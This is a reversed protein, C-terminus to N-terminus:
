CTGDDGIPDRAGGALAKLAAGKTYGAARLVDIALQPRHPYVSKALAEMSPAKM